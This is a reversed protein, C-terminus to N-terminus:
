GQLLVASLLVNLIISLGFTNKFDAQMLIASLKGKAELKPKRTSNYSRKREISQANEEGERNLLIDVDVM